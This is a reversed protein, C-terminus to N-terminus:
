RVPEWITASPPRSSAQAGPLTFRFDSGGGDAEQVWIRGGHREVIKRCLALGLGTGGGGDVREFMEFVREGQGEPIGRGHDRVWLEHMGSRGRAGVEVHTGAPSGGFRLANVLLNQLLQRLQVPDGEVTPLPERAIVAERESIEAQLGALTEDLVAELDVEVRELSRGAVSSYALVGDLLTGMRESGSVIRGLAESSDGDLRSGDRTDILRALGLITKLPAGLDHAVVHAFQELDANSRSLEDVRRALAEAEAEAPTPRRVVRVDIFRVAAYFFLWVGFIQMLHFVVEHAGVIGGDGLAHVAIHTHTLGCGVFFFIAGFRFARTFMPTARELRIRPIVVAAIAFYGLAIGLALVATVVPVV